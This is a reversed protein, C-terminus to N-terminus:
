WGKRAGMASVVGGDMTVVVRIGRVGLLGGLGIFVADNGVICIRICDVGRGPYEIAEGSFPLRVADVGFVVVVLVFGLPLHTSEKIHIGCSVTM